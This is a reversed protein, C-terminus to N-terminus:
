VSNALLLCCAVLLVVAIQCVHLENYNRKFLMMFGFVSGISIYKSRGSSVLVTVMAILM